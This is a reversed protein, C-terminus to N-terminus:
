FRTILQGVVARLFLITQSTAAWVISEEWKVGFTLSTKISKADKGDRAGSKIVGLGLARSPCTAM